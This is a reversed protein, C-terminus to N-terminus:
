KTAVSGLRSGANAATTQKQKNNRSSNNNSSRSNNNSHSSSSDNSGSGAVRPRHHVPLRLARYSPSPCLPTPPFPAETPTPEWSKHHPHFPPGYLP